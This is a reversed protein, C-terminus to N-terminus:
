SHARWGAPSWERVKLTAGYEDALELYKAQADEFNDFHYFTHDTCDCILNGDEDQSMAGAPLVHVLYQKQAEGALQNLQGKQVLHVTYDPTQFDRIAGIKLQSM